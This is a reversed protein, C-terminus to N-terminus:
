ENSIPRNIDKLQIRRDSCQMAFEDDHTVILVIRGKSIEKILPILEQISDKDLASTPEDFCLIKPSLMIARLIAIRQKQGGSLQYPYKYALQTLSLKKLLQIAKQKAEEKTLLKQYIAADTINQLINRHPFLQYNQFVLGVDSQKLPLDDLLIEGEDMTELGCLIRLLTTKGQGSPGQLVTIEDSELTLNVKNLVLIDFSKSLDHIRLTLKNM